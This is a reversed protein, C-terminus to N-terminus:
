ATDPPPGFAPTAWGLVTALPTTSGAPERALFGRLINVTRASTVLGVHTTDVTGGDLAGRVSRGSPFLPADFTAAVSLAQIGPPLPEALIRRTADPSALTQRALPADPDFKGIGLRRALGTFVRLVDGGVRGSGDQGRPPYPAVNRPFGALMVLHSVGPITGGALGHWAILNGQSHTVVVVPAGDTAKRVAVVQQTIAQTLTDLPLQTHQQGYPAHLRLPCRADGRPAGPGPGLYSYYFVRDCSFGLPQPEFRYLAGHGSSTDVGPVLFLVAESQPGPQAGEASGTAFPTLVAAGILCALPLFSAAGALPSGGRRRPRHNLVAISIAASVPVLAVTGWPGAAEALGGVVILLFLYRLGWRIRQGDGLLVPMLAPGAVLLIGLGAWFYWHYLAALAAFSLGAALALPIWAVLYFRAARRVRERFPAEFGMAGLIVALILSRATLSALAGMAFLPYSSARAVLVRLDFALDFPPLAVAHVLGPWRPLVGAGGLLVTAAALAALPWWGLFRRPSGSRSSM